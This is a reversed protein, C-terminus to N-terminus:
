RVRPDRSMGKEQLEALYAAWRTEQEAGLEYLYNWTFIGSDHLDDFVIRVAYHGVSELNLIGVHMRGGVTQRQSPAHGQVEASPSHVRLYEAPYSFRAGDDFDVELRKEEKRLRIETPWHRTGMDEVAEASGTMRM